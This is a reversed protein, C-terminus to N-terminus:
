TCAQAALPSHSTTITTTTFRCHPLQCRRAPQCRHHPLLLVLVPLDLLSTATRVRTTGPAFGICLRGDVLVQNAPRSPITCASDPAQVPSARPPRHRQLHTNVASTATKESSCRNRQRNDCATTVLHLRFSSVPAALACAIAFPGDGAPVVAAASLGPAHSLPLPGLGDRM